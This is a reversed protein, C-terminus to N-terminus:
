LPSCSRRSSRRRAGARHRRPEDLKHARATRCTSRTSRGPRDRHRDARERHRPRAGVADAHDPLAPRAPRSVEGRDRHARRVAPQRHRDEAAGSGRRGARGAASGGSSCRRGGVAGGRAGRAARRAHPGVARGLDGGRGDPRQGPLHRHRHRRRAHRDPRLHHERRARGAHGRDALLTRARRAHRGGPGVIGLDPHHFLETALPAAELRAILRLHEAM